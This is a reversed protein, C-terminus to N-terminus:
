FQVNPVVREAINDLEFFASKTFKYMNAIINSPFTDVLINNERVTGNYYRRSKEIDGELTSLEAQLQLFNTNAKLDPYQEAVANLNMMAQNLNKEAAEKEQITNAGMAAARARTVSDFTEREHTAYGKVTEVLNPILDHRKKLMVDISSWAEQVMTRLKVLRNYISIGYFFFIAIAALIILIIMM